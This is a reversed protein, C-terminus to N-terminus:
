RFLNVDPINLENVFEQMVLTNTEFRDNGGLRVSGPFLNKIEDGIVGIGGVLYVKELQKNAVYQKVTDPLSTKSTLLIPMGMKSAVASISLADPFDNGTALVIKKVTGLKEAIKVSTEYRDAGYLREFKISASKLSTEVNASVAGTGGAIFVTEVGLRRLEALVDANLESTETLLIPANYKKALPGACLADPFDDGTALVAYQSAAWGSKSIEVSTKYRDSGSIRNSQKAQAASAFNVVFLQTLVLCIILCISLLKKSSKKM